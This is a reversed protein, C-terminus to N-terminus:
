GDSIYHSITSVLLSLFRVAESGFAAIRLQGRSVQFDSPSLIDTSIYRQSYALQSGIPYGVPVDLFSPFYM